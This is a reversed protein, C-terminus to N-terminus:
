SRLQPLDAITPLRDGVVQEIEAHGSTRLLRVACCAV